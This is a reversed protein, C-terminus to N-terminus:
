PRARGFVITGGDAQTVEWGPLAELVQQRVLRQWDRARGGTTTRLVVLQGRLKNVKAVEGVALKAATRAKQKESM